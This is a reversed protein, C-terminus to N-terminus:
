AELISWVSGEHCRCDRCRHSAERCSKRGRIRTQSFLMFRSVHYKRQTKPNVFLSLRTLPRLVVCFNFLVRSKTLYLCDSGLWDYRHANVSAGRGNLIDHENPELIPEGDEDHATLTEGNSYDEGEETLTQDLNDDGVHDSDAIEGPALVGHESVEVGKEENPFQGSGEVEENVNEIITVM